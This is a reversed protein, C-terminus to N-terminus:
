FRFQYSFKVFFGAADNIFQRRRRILAAEDPGLAPCGPDAVGPGECLFINQANGNYGVYLVTGPHVLYTLLFDGNFNKRTLISTHAPNTLVADFQLIVRLSLERTFQYNWKSRFIHNNLISDESGRDTLRFFIYTNDIRLQTTPRVTAALNATTIDALFPEEGPPPAFNIRTGWTYQGNFTVPRYYSSQFFFGARHRSFDKNGTLVPFDVPRLRERDWNYLAGIETQGIFEFTISSDQTLDLRTGSHDFVAETNFFPGWSIFYKGEPRFGYGVQQGIRRIDPRLLFGPVTRFGRSFDNYELNYNLQRGRRLLVASYAPGALKGEDNSFCGDILQRGARHVFDSVPFCRTWSTVAQFEAVWNPSLKFRGDLGVIRNYVDEFERDTYIFGLTSQAGVDRSVRFIGFLARKGSLPDTEAVSKGPAEDDIVFAGLAWPGLKGTGRVGFQPDAIRRTFVLSIPTNFYGANELFFPRKEPFFVEFRQNVTVQPEDSEVQSFDPNIAVDMVLADRFVIKADLGADGEFRDRDFRPRLPDRADITRTSRLIGFPTLQVNRGPSIRELGELKAAQNLRGEIRSSIHPWFNNENTRPITRNFIIGWTQQESDPFRLSKFPISMWVVFGQDTVKGRSDWVTDFSSDFNQGETWLADWQVGFPNTLFAYARREDNFTDLMVEVLDDGFVNERPAMRARVKGPESDFCVFVAYFNKDDYGFYVETRQSSPAGDSPEQQIFGEVKALKGEMAANPKMELFDELTPAQEVRPIRVRPREAAHLPLVSIFLVLWFLFRRGRAGGRLPAPANLSSDPRPKIRRESM